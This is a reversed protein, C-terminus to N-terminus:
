FCSAKEELDQSSADCEQDNTSVFGLAATAGPAKAKVAFACSGMVCAACEEGMFVSFGSMLGKKLSETDREKYDMYAIIFQSMFRYCPYLVAATGNLLILLYGVFAKGNTNGKGSVDMYDIVVFGLFGFVTLFQSILAMRQMMLHVMDAHVMVEDSTGEVQAILRPM